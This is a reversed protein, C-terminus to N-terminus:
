KCILFLEDNSSQDMKLCVFIYVVDSNKHRYKISANTELLFTTNYIEVVLGDYRQDDELFSLHQSHRLLHGRTVRYGLDRVHSNSCRFSINLRYITSSM